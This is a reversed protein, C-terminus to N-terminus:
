PHAFSSYVRRAQECVTFAGEGHEKTYAALRAADQYLSNRAQRLTATSAFADVIKLTAITEGGVPQFTVIFSRSPKPKSM